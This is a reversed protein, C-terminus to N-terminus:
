HWFLLSATSLVHSSLVVADIAMRHRVKLGLSAMQPPLSGSLMNSEASFSVLIGLEGLLYDFVGEFCNFGVDLRQVVIVCEASSLTDM